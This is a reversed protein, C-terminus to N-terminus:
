EREIPEKEDTETASRRGFYWFPRTSKVYARAGPINLEIETGGDLETWITLKGGVLKARERMGPLGYHGERGDGSLVDSPIGKGDDRVRLRFYKEDYRIEVEINQAAAHRFANRLAEVALRYVEDRLIPHLNRSVGEVVVNFKPSPQSSAASALEEGVTRIAVALDNKEVTSLRLGQVADRGEAIAQSTQDAAQELTRLADTPRSTFMNISAQLRPLLAQFSQLLTDHLDRAVRTREAVREELRMNFQAALQRVRLQYATWLLALFAAGCLSYFWHTQYWMPPIVFELTDGTENWVGSNNCAKVHFRYTGPGLNTYQVERDNVVEHWNENQGELKYRFRVKEPAVLSLATYDIALNRVRPHLRVGDNADYTKEDATIQEIHVPPPINNFPLHHPDIVNVGASSTFWLKGERGKAVLPTYGSINPHSKVGDSADFITLQITQKAHSVWADLEPRAIRVLGCATYLWVSHVEDEMMWHVSDCPLGNHSTLKVVGGDKIRSLGGEAAAWVAGNGDKYFSHVIGEAVGQAVGYATRIHGDKFFGVGGERFGLWLGGQAADHLLASAPEKHGLNAWSIHEALRAELLHFLGGEHSIWVNGASDGTISPMNGPPVPEVRVVRENKVVALGATTAAWINGRSDEFLSQLEDHPLGTGFIERITSGPEALQGAALGGAAASARVTRNRYITIQGKNWRNLGDSTGVWISGDNGSLVSSIGRSSFGQQISFTPIAFERFRDLGSPTSVWINGERDEFFCRVTDGSLDGSFGDSPTFVDTKRQHIHLLGQDVLAGIWLGGDRDRLLRNPSFQLAVPLPFAEFTGNRLKTIGGRRAILIGGDDSEVLAYTRQPPGTMAYLKPPGPKWHWVGAMAGAWLNGQSDEYISTVGSGPGGDKGYCETQGSQIKCLRAASLTWGAVVWITGGRDELIAEVIDGDLQPYHTLKGDKWSVLGRYTGIWLHGDGAARLSRIDSSPLHQGGPPEWPVARVGDFRLLGFETGLWLYGDPTQTIAWASGKSFGETIKWATHAYQNVDLSPDLALVYSCCAFFFGLALFCNNQRHV